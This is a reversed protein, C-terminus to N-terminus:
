ERKRPKKEPPTYRFSTFFRETVPGAIYDPPGDAQVYFLNGPVKVILVRGSRPEQHSFKKYTYTFEAAPYKDQLLFERHDGIMWQDPKGLNLKQERDIKRKAADRAAAKDDASRGSTRRHVTFHTDDLWHSEWDKDHGVNLGVLVIDKPTPKSPFTISLGEEPDELQFPPEQGAIRRARAEDQKKQNEEAQKVPDVNKPALAMKVAFFAV